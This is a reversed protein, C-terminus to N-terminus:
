IYNNVEFNLHTIGVTGRFLDDKIHHIFQAFVGRMPGGGEVYGISDDRTHTYM